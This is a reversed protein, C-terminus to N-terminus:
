HRLPGLVAAPPSTFRAGRTAVEHCVHRAEAETSATVTLRPSTCTAEFRGDRLKRTTIKPDIKTM